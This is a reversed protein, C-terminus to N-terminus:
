VADIGGAKLKEIRGRIEDEQWPIRPGGTLVYDVGLQKIRRMGAEDFGGAALGGAGTELCIKPTNPGEQRPGPIEAAAAPTAPALMAAGAAQLVNRRSLDTKLM